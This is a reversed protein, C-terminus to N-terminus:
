SMVVAGTNIIRWQPTGYYNEICILNASDGNNEFLLGSSNGSGSVLSNVGFNVMLKNSTGLPDYFISLVQGNSGYNQLDWNYTSSGASPAYVYIYPADPIFATGPSTIAAINGSMGVSLKQLNRIENKVDFTLGGQRSRLLVADNGEGNSHLILNAYGAVNSTINSSILIDGPTLLNILNSAEINLEGTYSNFLIKNELGGSDAIINLVGNGFINLVENSYLTLAGNNGLLDVAESALYKEDGGFYLRTTGVVYLDTADYTLASVGGFTGNDNYQIEGNVGGPTGGGGNADVWSLAGNGDTQLVQGTTGTDSPLTLTITSGLGGNPELKLTGGGASKFDISSNELVIVKKAAFPSIFFSKEM